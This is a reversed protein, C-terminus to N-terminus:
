KRPILRLHKILFFLVGVANVNVHMLRIISKAIMRVCYIKDFEKGNISLRRKSGDCTEWNTFWRPDIVEEKFLKWVLNFNRAKTIEDQESIKMITRKNGHVLITPLNSQLVVTGLSHEKPFWREYLAFSYAQISTLSPYNIISDNINNIVLARVSDTIIIEELKSHAVTKCGRYFLFNCHTSIKRLKPMLREFDTKLYKCLVNSYDLDDNVTLTLEEIRHLADCNNDSSIISLFESLEMCQMTNQEEKNEMEIKQKKRQPEEKTGDHEPSLKRKNNM